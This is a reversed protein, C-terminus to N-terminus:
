RDNQWRELFLYKISVLYNLHLFLVGPEPILPTFMIESLSSATLEVHIAKVSLIVTGHLDVGVNLM